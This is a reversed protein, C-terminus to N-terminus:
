HKSLKPGGVGPRASRREKGPNSSGPHNGSLAFRYKGANIWSALRTKQALACLPGFCLGSLAEKGLRSKRTGTFSSVTFYLLSIM